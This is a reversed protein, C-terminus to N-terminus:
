PNSESVDWQQLNDITVYWKLPVNELQYSGGLMVELPLKEITGNYSKLQTGVNRIVLSFVYPKYLNYYSLGIDTALGFSSYDGISSNIIKVTAGVYFNSWPINFAYGVSIAVDSATFNGTENGQEDAGILTGYNIYNVGGYISGFRRTLRKSYSVSGINIGSLYSTYNVALQKDLNENIVSPNWLPQNVDDFLTLVKGGLATQRASTSINLFSYVSEGGVQAFTPLSIFLIFFFVYARM